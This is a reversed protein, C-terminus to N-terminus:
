LFLTQITNAYANVQALTPTVPAKRPPMGRATLEWPARLPITASGKLLGTAEMVPSTVIPGNAGSATAEM